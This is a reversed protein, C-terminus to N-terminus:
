LYLLYLSVLLDLYGFAADPPLREEPIPWLRYGLFEQGHLIGYVFQQLRYWM